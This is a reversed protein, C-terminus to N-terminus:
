LTKHPYRIVSYAPYCPLGTYLIIFIKSAILFNASHLFRIPTAFGPIETTARRLIDQFCYSFKLVIACSTLFFYIYLKFFIFVYQCFLFHLTHYRWRIQVPLESSSSVCSQPIVPPRFPSVPIPFAPLISIFLIHQQQQM